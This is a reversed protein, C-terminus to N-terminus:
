KGPVPDPKPNWLDPPMPPLEDGVGEDENLPPDSRPDRPRGGGGCPNLRPDCTVPASEPVAAIPRADVPPPPDVEVPVGGCAVLLCVLILRKMFYTHLPAPNFM